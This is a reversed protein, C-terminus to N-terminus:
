FEWAIGANALTEGNSRGMAGFLKCGEKLTWRLGVQKGPATGSAGFLDGTLQVNQAIAFEAGVAWRTSNVPDTFASRNRERGLNAHLGYAPSWQYSLLGTLTTSRQSAAASTEDTRAMELKFGASVPGQHLPIWKAAIGHSTNRTDPSTSRDRLQTYGLGLELSEVPAYSFSLARSRSPGSRFVGAELKAGQANLTSADDTVMPSEAHVAGYFAGFFITLAAAFHKFHLNM